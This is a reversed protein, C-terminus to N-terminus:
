EYGAWGGVRQFGACVLREITRSVADWRLWFGIYLDVVLM